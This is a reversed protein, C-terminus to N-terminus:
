IASTPLRLCSFFLSCSCRPRDIAFSACLSSSFFATWPFNQWAIHGAAYFPAALLMAGPLPTPAHGLYTRGDYPYRGQHVASLEIRLADERDSGQNLTHRLSVPYLIIFAAAFALYLLVFWKLGVSGGLQRPRAMWSMAVAISVVALTMAMLAKGHSLYRWLPAASILTWSACVSFVLCARALRHM